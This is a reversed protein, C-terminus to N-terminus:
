QSSLLSQYLNIYREAQLELPYETVAVQRCNQKLKERLDRDELLQEIGIALDEPDGPQALYGTMGHRVLDPVGGVAFSVMPTGCSMSEQLVLPLNDAQTPFVFLDAASYVIAKLRDNGIYGLNLTSIDTARAISQGGEGLTMLVVQKRLSEPLKKLAEVLLAGGKRKDKFSVSAFLLAYKDEPLSLVSRAFGVEVPQYTFTDIGYPIHYVSFRKLISIKALKYLWSSPTVITLKSQEYVWNKLQKDSPTNDWPLIPDFRLNPCRGCSKQWRDCSYSYTCGGTFAWMDHLTFVTVKERTIRPLMFYSFYGTHINHLNIVDAQQYVKQSFLKWCSFNHVPKLGLTYCLGRLSLDLYRSQPFQFVNPDDTVAQGVLLKSDVGSRILGLHLQYGAIGAGGQKDSQNIQLVKM